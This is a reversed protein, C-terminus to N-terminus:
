VWCCVALCRGAVVAALSSPRQRSPPLQLPRVEAATAARSRRAEAQAAAQRAAEVAASAEDAAAAAQSAESHSARERLLALKHEVVEADKGLRRRFGVGERYGRRKPLDPPAGTLSITLSATLLGVAVRNYSRDGVFSSCDAIPPVQAGTPLGGSLLLMM